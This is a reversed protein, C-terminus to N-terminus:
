DGRQPSNAYNTLYYNAARQPNTDTVGSLSDIVGGDRDFVTVVYYSGNEAYGRLMALVEPQENVIASRVFM